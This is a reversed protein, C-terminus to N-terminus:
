DVRKFSLSFGGLRGDELLEVDAQMSDEGTLLYRVSQVEAAPDDNRFVVDGERAEVFRLAIAGGDGEWTTYDANFHAFRMFAGAPSDAIVIYELVALAGENVGRAMGTMVGGEPALWIEEFTMAGQAGRWHGALFAADRTAPGQAFAPAAALLVIISLAIRKM